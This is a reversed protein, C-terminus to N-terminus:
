LCIDYITSYPEPTYRKSLQMKILIILLIILGILVAGGMDLRLDTGPVIGLILLEFFPKFAVTYHPLLTSGYWLLVIDSANMYFWWM